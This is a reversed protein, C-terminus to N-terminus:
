FAVYYVILDVSMGMLWSDNAFFRRKANEMLLEGWPLSEKLLM